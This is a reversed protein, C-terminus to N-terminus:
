VVLCRQYLLLGASTMLLKRFNPLHTHVLLTILDVLRSHFTCYVVHLVIM